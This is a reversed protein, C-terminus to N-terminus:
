QWLKELNVSVSRARYASNDRRSAMAWLNMSIAVDKSIWRKGGASVSWGNGADGYLRRSLQGSSIFSWDAEGWEGKLGAYVVGSGQVPSWYDPANFKAERTGMGFFPKVVKGIPRWAPDVNLNAALINNGDSIHYYNVLGSVRGFSFDQWTSGGLHNATLGQALANPNVAIRGWNVRGLQILTRDQNLNLRVSGFLTRNDQTPMSLEFRPKFAMNLNQYRVSVDQQDAKTGPLADRVKSTEVEFIQTGSSDRWRHNLTAFRRDEETSDSSGGFSLTTRPSLERGALALGELADANSPDSALVNRYLPAAQDDRGRWRHLNALGLNAADANKGKALGEYVPRAEELRGTWALSNAIMLQLADDTKQKSMLALGATGAAQYDGAAYQDAIRQEDPNLKPVDVGAQPTKGASSAPPIYKFPALQNVGGLAPAASPYDLTSDPLMVRDDAVVVMPMGICLMVPLLRVKFPIRLSNIVAHRALSHYNKQM